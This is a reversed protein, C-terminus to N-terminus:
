VAPPEALAAKVTDFTALVFAGANTTGIWSHFFTEVIVRMRNHDLDHEVDTVALSENKIVNIGHGIRVSLTEDEINWLGSEGLMFTGVTMKNSSRVTFGMMRTQGSPDTMPITLYFQGSVDQAMGIRWKDQPNIILMDPMFELTEMQAAVAAFAHYDTIKEAPFQGDLASSVYSAADAILKTTLVSAYDRLIKQNILRKIINYADNRFKSFEETIVYKAAVKSYESHNRVLSTSVLPKLEGESILAFAGEEGGEELWTKYQAISAVTTRSAMDFVYERPRRKEVFGAFSFSEILDEPIAAGAAIADGMEMIVAARVNLKISGERTRSITELEPMLSDLTSRFGAQSGKGPATLKTLAEGQKKLISRISKDSDGLLEKLMVPDIALDGTDDDVLGGLSKRVQMAVGAADLPNMDGLTANLRTAFDLTEGTLGETKIQIKKM